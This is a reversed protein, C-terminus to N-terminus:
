DVLELEIKTNINADTLVYHIKERFVKIDELAEEAKKKTNMPDYIMVEFNRKYGDTLDKIVKDDRSGGSTKQIYNSIAESSMNRENMSQVVAEVRQYNSLMKRYMHEENDLNRQRAIANAITYEKGNINVKTIANAENIKAKIESYNKIVAISEDFYSQIEKKVDELNKGDKDEESHKKRIAVLNYENIKRSKAELIKKKALAEYLTITVTSM